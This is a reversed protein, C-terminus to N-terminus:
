KPHTCADHVNPSLVLRSLSLTGNHFLALVSV